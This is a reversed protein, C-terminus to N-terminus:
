KVHELSSIWVALIVPLLCLGMILVSIWGTGKCRRQIEEYKEKERKRRDDLIIKHDEDLVEYWHITKKDYEYHGVRESKIYKSNNPVCENEYLAILKM